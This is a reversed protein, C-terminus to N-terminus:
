DVETAQLSGARLSSFDCVYAVCRVFIFHHLPARFVGVSIAKDSQFRPAIALATKGRYEAIYEDTYEVM